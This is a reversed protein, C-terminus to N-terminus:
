KARRHLAQLGKRVRAVYVDWFGREDTTGTDARDFADVWRVVREREVVAELDLLVGLPALPGAIEYLDDEGVLAEDLRAAAQEVFGAVVADVGPVAFLADVRPGEAYGGITAAAEESREGGKTAAEPDAAIRELAEKADARLDQLHPSSRITNAWRDPYAGLSSPSLQLTLGVTAVLHAADPTPDLSDVLDGLEDLASDNDYLGDDWTGM